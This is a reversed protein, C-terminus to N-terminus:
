LAILIWILGLGLLVPTPLVQAIHLDCLIGVARCKADARLRVSVLVEGEWTTPGAREECASLPLSPTSACSGQIHAAPRWTSDPGKV